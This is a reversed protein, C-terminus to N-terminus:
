GLHHPDAAPGRAPRSGGGTRGVVPEGTLNSWLSETEHDFMLKNSRYLLGSTGFLIRQGDMTGAAHSVPSGSRCLTCYSLASCARRRDRRQAARALGHDASPYARYEGTRSCAGFVLEGDGLYEAEGAPITDPNMLTPIEDVRFAAGSSRPCGSERRLAKTSSTRTAPISARSCSRRSGQAYGPMPARDGSACGVWEVWDFYRVGLDAGTLAELM